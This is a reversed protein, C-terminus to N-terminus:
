QMNGKKYGDFRKLEPMYGIMLEYAENWNIKNDPSFLISKLVSAAGRDNMGNLIEVNLMTQIKKVNM